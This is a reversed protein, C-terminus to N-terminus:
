KFNVLNSLEQFYKKGIIYYTKSDIFLMNKEIKIIQDVNVAISKNIRVLKSSPVQQLFTKLNNRVLYSTDLM